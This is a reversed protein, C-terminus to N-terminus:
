LQKDIEKRIRRDKVTRRIYIILSVVVLLLIAGAGIAGPLLYEKDDKVVEGGEGRGVILNMSVKKSYSAGDFCRIELSHVGDELDKVLITLTWRRNEGDLKEWVINKEDAKVWRGGDLKIELSVERRFDDNMIGTVRAHYYVEKGGDEMPESEVTLTPLIDEWTVSIERTAVESVDGDDDEATLEITHNGFSLGTEVVLIEGSGLFGDRSSNWYYDVIKGDLDEGGATLIVPEGEKPDEPEVALISCTPSRNPKNVIHKRTDPKSEMGEDDRVVLSITHKGTFLETTSFESKESLFGDINSTWRYGVIRGDGDEGSGVFTVEEGRDSPSPSIMEIRAAPVANPGTIVLPVSVELSWDDENDRVKLFITHEGTSMEDASRNFVARDSIKGDLSSRWHYATVIGDTDSGNGTFTVHDSGQKAPSPTVSEITAEPLQNPIEIVTIKKRATNHNMDGDSDKVNLSIEYSGPSEFIHAVVAEDTWGTANGDGFDFLYKLIGVDDTSGSGDASIEEGAVGQDSSLELVAEPLENKERVTLKVAAYNNELMEEPPVIDEILVKVDHEGRQGSTDLIIDFSREELSTLNEIIVPPIIFSDEDMEDLYFHLAASRIDVVGRNMVRCSIEVDNGAIPHRDSLVLESIAIDPKDLPETITIERNIEIGTLELEKGPGWTVSIDVKNHYSGLGFELPISNQQGHAGMGGEVEKMYENQGAIVKVRAGIGRANHDTGKLNVRLWSNGNELNNRFLRIEYTGNEFPYKGATLLDTRGDNDYDCWSAAYTDWVRVGAEETVDSFTGDGNGMYLFSYAYGVDGYVQPLYLDLYGDNNLDDWACGVFLEDGDNPAVYPKLPIGASSRVNTFTYDPGGNNRYLLSDDSTRWDKHNLNTVWLDLDGDCDYDGWLAGVGHGPRDYPDLNEQSRPPGDAVDKDAAVDTFTGNGNNEYLYNLQQRYNAVYLDPWGDDNYDGWVAGRSYTPHDYEDLGAEVTVNSFTGDGDNRYFVNPYYVPEGDNWNEGRTIFLDVFGDDDYDAWACGTTHSFSDIGSISTVDSFTNQGGQGPGDNHWLKNSGVMYIDLWGDNDYDAWVGHGGGSIGASSTTEVFDWNPGGYNMFLRSEALLDQFGDNNYDGWAFFNGRVGSLGVDDTVNVFLPGDDRTYMTQSTVTIEHTSPKEHAAKRLNDMSLVSSSLLIAVVFLIPYRYTKM